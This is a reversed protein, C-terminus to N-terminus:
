RTLVYAESADALGAIVRGAADEDRRAVVFLLRVDDGVAFDPKETATRLLVERNEGVDLLWSRSGNQATVRGELDGYAEDSALLEENPRMETWYAECLHRVSCYQCSEKTPRAISPRASLDHEVSEIRTRVEQAIADLESSAPADILEDHSVYSVVLREVPLQKPNAESDRSWLLAYTRLQDAHHENPSGTKYDVITCGGAAVTLLDARGALRLSVARLEAEPHSGHSLPGRLHGDIADCDDADKHEDPVLVTRSIIAQARQRIDPVRSRLLGRLAEVNVRPNGVLRALREDIAAEALASYGGLEKLVLVAAPDGLSPCERDKMARLVVELIRHVVDGLLAPPVPREPYGVKNWVDPYVARM